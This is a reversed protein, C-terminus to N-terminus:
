RYVTINHGGRGACIDCKGSGHCRWCTSVRDGRYYWGSGGCKYDPCQGSGFCAPCQQWEQVPIPDRHHEVVVTTSNNGSNGNSNSSSSSSSSAAVTQQTAETKIKSIEKGTLDCEGKYGVMTYPFRKTFSVFDGISTYGRSTDIIINGAYDMLGWYGNLKFKLYGTTGATELAEMETPVIKKGEADTLGYRNGKSVKYYKNGGNTLAEVSAYGGNEKIDDATPALRKTSIEKGNADCTGTMGKKSFAFTGKSSDYNGISTYNRSTPIIEKGDFTIIGYYGNSRVKLYNGGVSEIKSYTDSWPIAWERKTNIIGNYNGKSIIYYDTNGIREIKKGETAAIILHGKADKLGNKYSRVSEVSLGCKECNNENIFSPLSTIEGKFYEKRYANRAFAGNGIYNVSNPINIKELKCFDFAGDGIYTLSSPLNLEVLKSCVDFCGKPIVSLSEPLQVKELNYCSSFCWDGISSVNNPIVISRLNKCGGFAASGISVLSEPLTVSSFSCDWFANEGISKVSNPIIIDQFTYGGRKYIRGFAYDGISTVGEEIIVKRILEQSKAWPAKEARKFNPMDGNGSIILTGSKDLEWYLGNGLPKKKAEINASALLCLLLIIFNRKKM